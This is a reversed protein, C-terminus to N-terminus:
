EINMQYYQELHNLHSLIKKSALELAHEDQEICRSNSILNLRKLSNYVYASFEHKQNIFSSSNKNIDHIILDCDSYLGSLKAYMKNVVDVYFIDEKGNKNLRVINWCHGGSKRRWESNYYDASFLQITGQYPNDSHQLLRNIIPLSIVSFHRCELKSIKTFIVRQMISDINTHIVDIISEILFEENEFLDKIPLLKEEIFTNWYIDEQNFIIPDKPYMPDIFAMQGVFKTVSSNIITCNKSIDEKEIRLNFRLRQKIPSDVSMLAKTKKKPTYGTKHRFSTREPIKDLTLFIKDCSDDKVLEELSFFDPVPFDDMSFIPLSFLLYIFLRLLKM